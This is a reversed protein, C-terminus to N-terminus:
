AAGINQRVNEANMDFVDDNRHQYFEGSEPEECAFSVANSHTELHLKCALSKTHM